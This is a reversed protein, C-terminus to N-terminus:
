CDEDERREVEAESVEKWVDTSPYIALHRTQSCGCVQNQREVSRTTVVQM